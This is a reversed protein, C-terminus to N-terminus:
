GGFPNTSVHTKAGVSTQAGSTGTNQGVPGLFGNRLMQAYWQEPSGVGGMGLNANAGAGQFGGSALQAARQMADSFGGSLLGGIQTNRGMDNAALRNAEVVAHRGGGFAGASTADSASSMRSRADANDWNANAANVVQQQYPDMLGALATKDGTLANIGTQGAHMLGSNYGAADNTLPSPGATGAAKAADYIEQMRQQTVPDVAQSTNQNNTTKEAEASGGKSM